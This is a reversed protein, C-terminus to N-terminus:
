TARANFLETNERCVRATYSVSLYRSSLTRVRGDNQYKSVSLALSMRCTLLLILINTSVIFDAWSHTEHRAELRRGHWTTSLGAPVGGGGDQMVPVGASARGNEIYERVKKKRPQTKRLPVFDEVERSSM